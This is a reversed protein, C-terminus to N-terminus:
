AGVRRSRLLLAVSLTIGAWAFWDGWRGYPTSVHVPVVEDILVDRTDLETMPGLRGRADICTSIGTTTCRVVPVGFQAAQIATLMLHQSPESTDGYWGDYTINVLLDPQLVISRRVFSPHIAEYCIIFAMKAKPTEYLKVDEGPTLDNAAESDHVDELFPIWDAFPVYEGFPVRIIKDYREDVGAPSIRYASNFCRTRGDGREYAYGGAWLEVGYRRVFDIVARNELRTPESMIATEPWVVADVDSDRGISESLAVLDAPVRFAGQAQLARRREVDNNSQVLAVRLPEAKQEADRIRASQWASWGLSLATMLIVTAFGVILPRREDRRAVLATVVGNAAMVLFTVGSVGTLSVILFLATQQYWAVGQYYPFLQPNLFECGAFWIARAPIRFAGAARGVAHYGLAFVGAYLGSGAAFVVLVLVGVSRPLDTFASLTHVLWYFIALNASFGVLWGALFARRGRVRELVILAPVWAVPHIWVWNAPPSILAQILGTFLLAFVAQWFKM